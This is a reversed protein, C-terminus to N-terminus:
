RCLYVWYRAGKLFYDMNELISKHLAYETLKGM